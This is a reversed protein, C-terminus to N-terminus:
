QMGQAALDPRSSIAEARHILTEFTRFYKDISYADRLRGMGAVADRYAHDDIMKEITEALAHESPITCTAGCGHEQVLKVIRSDPISFALIPRQSQIYSGIKTPFATRSITRASLDFWLTLFCLQFRDLVPGLDSPAIWGTCEVEPSRLEDPLAGVHLIKFRRSSRMNLLRVAALLTRWNEHSNVTGVSGIIIETSDNMVPAPLCTQPDVGKYLVLPDVDFEKRYLGALDTSIVGHSCACGMAHRFRSSVFRQIRPPLSSLALSTPPDDHVWLALPAGLARATPVAAAIAVDSMVAMVVQAGHKRGHAAAQHAMGWAWPGYNFYRRMRWAWDPRFWYGGHAYPIEPMQALPRPSKFSYWILDNRYREFLPELHRMAGNNTGAPFHTLVLTKPLHSM